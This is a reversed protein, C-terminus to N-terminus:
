KDLFLRMDDFYPYEHDSKEKRILKIDSNITELLKKVQDYSGHPDHTNQICLLNGPSLIRFNIIMKNKDSDDLNNFPIGCLVIKKVQDYIQPLLLSTIYTGISKSVFSIDQNGIQEVITRVENQHDFDAKNGTEWHKWEHVRADAGLNKAVEHAWQRNNESFGPLIITQM